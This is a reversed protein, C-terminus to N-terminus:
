TAGQRVVSGTKPDLMIRWRMSDKTTHITWCGGDPQVFFREYGFERALREAQQRPMWEEPARYPCVQESAQVASTAALVVALAVTIATATVRRPM